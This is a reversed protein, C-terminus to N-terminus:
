FSEALSSKLVHPHLGVRADDQTQLQKEIIGNVHWMVAAFVEAAPVAKFVSPRSGVDMHCEARLVDKNVKSFFALDEGTDDDACEAPIPIAPLEVDDTAGEPNNTNAVERLRTRTGKVLGVLKRGAFGGFMQPCLDNDFENNPDEGGTVEGLALEYFGQDVEQLNFQQQIM